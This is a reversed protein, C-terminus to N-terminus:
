WETKEYAKGFTLLDTRINESIALGSLNKGKEIHDTIVLKGDKEKWHTKHNIYFDGQQDKWGIIELCVLGSSRKKKPFIKRFKPQAQDVFKWLYDTLWTHLQLMWDQKQTTSQM